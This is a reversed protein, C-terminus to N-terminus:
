LCRKVWFAMNKMEGGNERCGFLFHVFNSPFLKCKKIQSVSIKELVRMPMSREKEEALVRQAMAWDDKFTQFIVLGKEKGKGHIELHNNLYSVKLFVSIVVMFMFAAIIRRILNRGLRMSQAMAATCLCRDQLKHLWTEPLLSFCKRRLLRYRIVPHHFHNHNYSHTHSHNHPGTFSGNFNNDEEDSIYYSYESSNNSLRDVNDLFDSIRRRTTKPGALPSSSSATNLAGSSM